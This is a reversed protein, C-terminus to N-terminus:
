YTYSMTFNCKDAEVIIYKYFKLEKQVAKHWNNPM